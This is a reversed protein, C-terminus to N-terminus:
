FTLSCYAECNHPVIIVMLLSCSSVYGSGGVLDIHPDIMLIQLCLSDTHIRFHIVRGYLSWGALLGTWFPEHGQRDLHRSLGAGGSFTRGPGWAPQFVTNSLSVELFM